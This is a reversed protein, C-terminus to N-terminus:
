VRDDELSIVKGEVALVNPEKKVYDILGESKKYKTIYGKIFFKARSTDKDTIIKLSPSGELMGETCGKVLMLSAQEVESSAPVDEGSKFPEIVIAGKLACNRGTVQAKFNVGSTDAKLM